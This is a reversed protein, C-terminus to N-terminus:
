INNNKEEEFDQSSNTAQSSPNIENNLSNLKDNGKGIAVMALEAVKKVGENFDYLLTRGFTKVGEPNLGKIQGVANGYGLGTVRNSNRNKWIGYTLGGAAAVTGVVAVSEVTKKILGAQTSPSCMVSALLCSLAVKSNFFKM